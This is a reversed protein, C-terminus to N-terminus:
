TILELFNNSVNNEHRRRKVLPQDIYGIKYKSAIRLALDRDNSAFLKEDFLGIIDFLERKILLTQTWAYGCHVLNEFIWGEYGAWLLGKFKSGHIERGFSDIESM